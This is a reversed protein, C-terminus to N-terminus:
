NLVLRLHGYGDDISMYLDFVQNGDGALDATTELPEPHTIDFVGEEETLAPLVNGCIINVVEGLADHQVDEAPPTDTGMFNAALDGLLDRSLRLTMEGVLPGSFRVQM